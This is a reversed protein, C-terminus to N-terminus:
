IPSNPAADLALTTPTLYTYSTLRQAFSQAVDKAVDPQMRQQAVAQAAAEQVEKFMAVGQLLLVTNM